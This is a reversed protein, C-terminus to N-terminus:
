PNKPASAVHNNRESAHFRWYDTALRLARAARDHTAFTALGRQHFQDRVQLLAAERAFPQLVVFFPKGSRVAFSSLTDLLAKLTHPHAQWQGAVLGAGTDMVVADIHPDRDLIALVRELNQTSHGMGITHGSDLPNRFSGGIVTFFSSLEQYSSESLLPVQLGAKEFADTIVVSPGGTMAILGVRTGTTPKAFQLLKIVDLLEDFNEAPIAGAQRVMAYWVAAPVALSGTHSSIARQGADSNGGKWIIVPKQQTVQRLLSFFRRGERVGELYMGVLRTEDDAALYDLYDSADLVAANGFSVAKSIKLGHQPAALSFTITHTGSQGIFGVTGAEGAPLEPYNRLGLRPHYLGMCNPGILALGAARATEAIAHELQKGEEDGIESFGSTFLMVGAVKKAACDAIIRPAIQRPVATMVYDIEDPIEALSRYNPVGLAAIGPLEREDIQVSYVKGQFASQSRLWMYNMTKKDGIVAVARANFARDLAARITPSLPRPSPRGGEAYLVVRADAAICGQPYAFVPNLDLEKVEPHADALASIQLLTQELAALDVPPQGRYGTLLPLSRIDRIMAQADHSSLPALRFAVDQFVEVYVGGLGFMVTAGFQPDSTLGIIVEIGPQALPQVSIGDITAAPQARRAADMIEAFAHSVAEPSALGLRVGGVDSKHVIDPSCIKLVVPFGIARAIAVAEEGTHALQAQTVPIGHASLLAKAEVETLLLRNRARAHQIVEVASTQTM